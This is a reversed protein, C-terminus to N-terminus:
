DLMAVETHLESTNSLQGPLHDAHGQKGIEERIPQRQTKPLRGDKPSLKYAPNDLRHGRVGRKPLQAAGAPILLKLGNGEVRVKRV